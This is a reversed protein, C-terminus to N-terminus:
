VILRQQPTIIKLGEIRKFHENNRTVLGFGRTLAIAGILADGIGISQRKAELNAYIHGAKRASVSTLPLIPLSKLVAQTTQLRRKKQRSKHAGYYLEFVTLATILMSFGKEELEAVLVQAEKKNRLLDVLIDTDLIVTSKEMKEM